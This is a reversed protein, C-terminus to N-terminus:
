QLLRITFPYKYEEGNSTKVAAVVMLVIWVVLIVPLVLFGICFWCLIGAVVVYITYSIQFNLVDKGVRDLYASEPRKILWIVLPALIQGLSPLLFGAFGSLHLAIAWSQEEPTVGPPTSPLNPPQNSPSPAPPPTNEM